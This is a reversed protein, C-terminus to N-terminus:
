IDWLPTISQIRQALHPAAKRAWVKNAVEDLPDWKEVPIEKVKSGCRQSCHIKNWAKGTFFQIGCTPCTKSLGKKKEKFYKRSCVRSCTLVRSDRPIFELSCVICTQPLM